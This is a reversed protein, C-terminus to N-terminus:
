AGASGCQTRGSDSDVFGHPRRVRELDSTTDDFCYDTVQRVTHGVKPHSTDPTGQRVNYGVNEQVSTQTYRDLRWPQLTAADFAQGVGDDGWNCFTSKASWARRGSTSRAATHVEGPAILRGDWNSTTVTKRFIVSATGSPSNCTACSKRAVPVM